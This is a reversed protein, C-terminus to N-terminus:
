ACKILMDRRVKKDEDVKHSFDHIKEIAYHCATRLGKM